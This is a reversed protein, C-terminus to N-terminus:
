EPSLSKLDEPGVAVSVLTILLAVFVTAIADDWFGCSMLLGIVRVAVTVPWYKPPTDPEITNLDPGVVKPVTAKLEM